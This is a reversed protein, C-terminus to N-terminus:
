GTHYKLGVRGGCPFIKSMLMDLDIRRERERERDAERGLEKQGGRGVREREKGRGGERGRPEERKWNKEEKRRKEREGERM